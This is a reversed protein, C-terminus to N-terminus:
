DRLGDLWTMYRAKEEATKARLPAFRARHSGCYPCLPVDHEAAVAAQWCHWAFEMGTTGNRHHYTMDRGTWQLVHREFADRAQDVDDQPM